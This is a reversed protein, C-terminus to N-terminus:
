GNALSLCLLEMENWPDGLLAGKIIRDIKVTTLFQERLVRPHHRRLTNEIMNLRNRWVGAKSMVSALSEGRDVEIGMACLSRLEKNLAWNIIIPETGEERLGRLMRIAQKSQGALISDVLKFVDYRASDTVARMALESDVEGDASMLAIKELEQAAALMNGEARAAILEAVHRHIEINKSKARRTIWSELARGSLQRAQVVLGHKELAKFWKANLQGRDIKNASVLLTDDSPSGSLYAEIHATGKKDPKRDGLKIEIIRKDAFLSMGSLNIALEDWDFGREVELVLRENAGHERALRRIADLSEMVQLPEDGFVMYAPKLQPSNLASNLKDPSLIMGIAM